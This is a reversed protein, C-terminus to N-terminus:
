LFYKHLTKNHSDDANACLKGVLSLLLTRENWAFTSVDLALHNGGLHRNLSFIKEIPGHHKKGILM